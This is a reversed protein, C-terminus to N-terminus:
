SLKAVIEKYQAVTLDGRLIAQQLASLDEAQDWAGLGDPDEGMSKAIDDSTKTPAPAQEVQPHNKQIAAAIEDTSAGSQILNKIDIM